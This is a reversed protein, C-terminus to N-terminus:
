DAVIVTSLVWPHGGRPNKEQAGIRTRRRVVLVGTAQPQHVLVFGNVSASKEDGGKKRQNRNSVRKIPIRFQSSVRVALAKKNKIKVLGSDFLIRILIVYKILAYM